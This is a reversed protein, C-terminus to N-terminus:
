ASLMTTAPQQPWPAAINHVPNIMGPGPWTRVIKEGTMVASKMGAM